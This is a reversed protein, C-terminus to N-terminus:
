STPFQNVETGCEPCIRLHSTPYGCQVCVGTVAARRFRRQTIWAYTSRRVKVLLQWIGALAFAYLIANPILGLSPGFYIRVDGVTWKPQVNQFRLPATLIAHRDAEYFSLARFSRIPWGASVTMTYRDREGAPEVKGSYTVGPFRWTQSFTGARSNAEHPRVDLFDKLNPGGFGADAITASVGACVIGLVAFISASQWRKM